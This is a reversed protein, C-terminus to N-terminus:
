QSQKFPLNILLNQPKLRVSRADNMALGLYVPRGAVDPLVRAPDAFELRYLGVLRELRQPEVAVGQYLDNLLASAQADLGVHWRWRDDDIAQLPRIKVEAGLMHQTWRELVRALANQGASAHALSYAKHETKSWGMNLLWRWPRNGEMYTAAVEENLVRMQATAVPAGGEILLRGIAGLGATQNMLDLAEQDGLLLQGAETSVKQPRFLLEAARWAFADAGDLLRATIDQVMLDLFLPPLQIPGARLLGVYCAELTGAALVADRFALFHGYNDRADPDRLAALTEPTVPATPQDQLRRHLARERRCAEPIPALEPRALLARWWDAQPVLWNNNEAAALAGSALTPWPQSTMGSDDCPQALRAHTLKNVPPWQGFVWDRRPKAARM